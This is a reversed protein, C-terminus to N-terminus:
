VRGKLEAATNARIKRKLGSAVLARQEVARVEKVVAKALAGVDVKEAEPAVVVGAAVLAIQEGASAAVSTPPIPFGPVNVSLAAVMELNSGIRRWDGSLASAKARRITLEDMAPNTIGNVWIGHEDEGARVWAWATGANDYHAAAAHARLGSGAHGTDITLAGVALDGQDTLVHGTHFYAYDTQSSPPTTCVGSIGIHCTGWTAVHGFVRGDTTVTLPTPGSLGPDSFRDLSPVEAAPPAAAVLTFPAAAAVSDGALGKDGRQRGPWIGTADHYWEACVRNLLHTPIYKSLQSRCRRFSGPTGWGIKAAGEGRVWYNHLRATAKPHTVWGPGRRFEESFEADAEGMGEASQEMAEDM